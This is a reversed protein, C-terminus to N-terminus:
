LLNESAQFLKGYLIENTRFIHRIKFHKRNRFPKRKQGAKSFQETLYLQIIGLQVYLIVDIIISSSVRSSKVFNMRSNLIQEAYVCVYYMIFRLKESGKFM